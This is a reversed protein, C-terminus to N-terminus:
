RKAFKYGTKKAWEESGKWNGYRLSWLAWGLADHYNESDVWIIRGYDNHSVAVRFFGEDWFFAFVFGMKSWKEFDKKMSRPKM